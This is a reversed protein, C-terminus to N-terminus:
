LLQCRKEIIDSEFVVKLKLLRLIKLGLTVFIKCIQNLLKQFKWGSNELNKGIEVFIYELKYLYSIIKRIDLGQKLM